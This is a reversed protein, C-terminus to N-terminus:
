DISLYRLQERALEIFLERRASSDARPFGPDLGFERKIAQALQRQNPDYGKVIAHASEAVEPTGVLIVKARATWLEDISRYFDERADRVKESRAVLEISSRHEEKFFGDSRLPQGEVYTSVADHWKHGASRAKTEASIFEIYVDLRKNEKHVTVQHRLTRTSFYITTLAGAVAAIALVVYAIATFHISALVWPAAEHPVHIVTAFLIGAPASCAIESRLCQQPSHRSGSCIKTNPSSATRTIARAKTPVEGKITWESPGSRRWTAPSGYWM